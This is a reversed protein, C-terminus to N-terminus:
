EKCNVPKAWYLKECMPCTLELAGTAVVGCHPCAITGIPIGYKMAPRRPWDDDEKPSPGAPVPKM